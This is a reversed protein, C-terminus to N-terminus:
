VNALIQKAKVLLKVLILGNINFSRDYSKNNYPIHISDDVVKNESFDFVFLEFNLNCSNENAYTIFDNAKKISLKVNKLRDIIDEKDGCWWIINIGVKKM